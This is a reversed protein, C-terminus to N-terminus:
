PVVTLPGGASNTVWFAAALIPASCAVLLRVVPVPAPWAEPRFARTATCCGPVGDAASLAAV